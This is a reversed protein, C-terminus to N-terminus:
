FSLTWGPLPPCPSWPSPHPRSPLQTPLHPGRRGGFQLHSDPGAQPAERGHTGPNLGETDGPFGPTKGPQQAPSPPHTPSPCHGLLSMGAAWGVVQVMVPAEPAAWPCLLPGGKAGSGPSVHIIPGPLAPRLVEGGTTRPSLKAHIPGRMLVRIVGRGRSTSIAM